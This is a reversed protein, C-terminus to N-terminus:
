GELYERRSNKCHNKMQKAWAVVYTPFCHYPYRYSWPLAWNGELAGEEDWFSDLDIGIWGFNDPISKLIMNWDFVIGIFLHGIFGWYKEGKDNWTFLANLALLPLIDSVTTPTVAPSKLCSKYRRCVLRSYVGLFLDPSKLHQILKIPTLHQIGLWRESVIYVMM